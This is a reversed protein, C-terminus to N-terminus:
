AQKKLEQRAFLYDLTLGEFFKDRIKTAEVIDFCGKGRIKYEVTNRHIGLHLAIDKIKIGSKLMEIKLNIYM